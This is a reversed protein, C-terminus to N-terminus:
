ELATGQLKPPDDLTELAGEFDAANELATSAVMHAVDDIAKKLSTPAIEHNLGTEELVFGVSGRLMDM